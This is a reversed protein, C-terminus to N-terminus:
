VDAQSFFSPTRGNNLTLGTYDYGLEIQYSFFFITMPTATYKVNTLCAYPITAVGVEVVVGMESEVHTM